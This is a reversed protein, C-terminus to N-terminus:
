KYNKGYREMWEKVTKGYYQCWVTQALAKLERDHWGRQHLNTHCQVCLWVTLLDRDAKTRYPGHLVHHLQLPGSAGCLYCCHENEDQIISRM